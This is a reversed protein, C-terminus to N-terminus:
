DNVKGLWRKKIWSLPGLTFLGIFTTIIAASYFGAGCAMGIAASIWMSAATTLGTVKGRHDSIIVGAGLFGIGSAIQAAIRTPDVKQFETFGYAGVITFLAAGLGVLVHTRLGARSDHFERELGILGSIIGALGLRYFLELHTIHLILQM